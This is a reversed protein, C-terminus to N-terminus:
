DPVGRGSLSALPMAQTCGASMQVVVALRFARLGQMLCRFMMSGPPPTVTPNIWTNAPVFFFFSAAACHAILILDHRKHLRACWFVSSMLSAFMVRHAPFLSAGDWSTPSHLAFFRVLNAHSSVDAEVADRWM